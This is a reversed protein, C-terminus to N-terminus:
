EGSVGSRPSLIRTVLPSRLPVSSANAAQGISRTDLAAPAGVPRRRGFTMFRRSM